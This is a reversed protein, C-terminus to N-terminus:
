PSQDWGANLTHNKSGSDKFIPYKSGRPILLDMVPTWASLMHAAKLALPVLAM